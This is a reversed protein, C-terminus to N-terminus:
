WVAHDGHDSSLVVITNEYLEPSQRLRAMVAAVQRDVLTQLYLYFQLPAPCCRPCCRRLLPSRAVSLYLGHQGARKGYM